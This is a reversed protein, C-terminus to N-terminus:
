DAFFALARVVRVGCARGVLGAPTVKVRRDYFFAATERQASSGPPVVVYIRATLASPFDRSLATRPVNRVRFYYELTYDYWPNAVVVPGHPLDVLIRALASAEPAAGARIASALLGTKEQVLGVGGAALVAAAAGVYPLKRGFRRLPVAIFSALAGVGLAYPIAWYNLARIRLPLAAAFAAAFAVASLVLILRFRRTTIVGVACGAACIAGWIPWGGPGWTRPDRLSRGYLRLFQGMDAWALRSAFENTFLSRWGNRWIVPTYLVTTFAAAALWTLAWRKFGEKTKGGNLIFDYAALPLVFLMATPVAYLALTAAAATVWAWLNGGGYARRDLAYLATLSLFIALEYGRALASFHLLTPTVAAVALAAVAGAKGFWRKGIVTVLAMVGVGALLNPLRLAPEAPGLASVAVKALLTNLLHNNPLQYASLADAWPRSVFMLYTIAEDYRIPDALHKVRLAAGLALLAAVAAAFPAAGAGRRGIVDNLMQPRM